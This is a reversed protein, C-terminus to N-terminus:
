RWRWRLGVLATRADQPITDMLHEEGSPVAAREDFLNRIGLSLELGPMGPRLLLTLSTLASSGLEAGSRTLQPGVFHTEVGARLREGFLPVTAALSALHRPSGAPTDGAAEAVLRGAEADPDARRSARQRTYSARLFVRGPLTGDAELELGTTYSSALNRYSILLDAPDVWGQILDHADLHFGTVGVRFSRTVAHQAALEFSELREPRLAEEPRKWSYGGDYYYSEFASPARFAEGYAARLSTAHGPQWVLAARPTTTGGFGTYTDHRLGATLSLGAPLRLEAQAFAAATWTQRHDAFVTDAAGEDLVGQAVLPNWRVEGGASLKHGRGLIQLYQAELATTHAEIYDAQLVDYPYSGSYRYWNHSATAWIRGLNPLAHEFQLSALAGRDRTQLRPDAFRTGYSATPVDKRRDYWGAMASFDGAQAKGLVREYRDGDLGTARGGNTEPADFEPYRFDAGGSRYISGELWAGAGARAVGARGGARWTGLSGGEVRGEVGGEHVARTVVNVVALFASTGYLASGPGRIVEVREVTELDFQGETGFTNGDTGGNNMRRGDVLLLLRSNNGGLRPVGRVSVSTYNRDDVTTFGPVANLVDAVTRWGFARIEERSIVTVAVPAEGLGQANRSASFVLTSDLSAEQARLAAGPAVALLVLLVPRALLRRM